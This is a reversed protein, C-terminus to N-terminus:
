CESVIVLMPEGINKSFFATPTTRASLELAYSIQDFSLGFLRTEVYEDFDPTASCFVTIQLTSRINEAIEEQQTKLQSGQFIKLKKPLKSINRIFNKRESITQIRPLAVFFTRRVLSSKMNSSNKLSFQDIFNKERMTLAEVSKKGIIYTIFKRPKRLFCFPPAGTKYCITSFTPWRTKGLNAKLNKRNDGNQNRLGLDFKPLIATSSTNPATNLSVTHSRAKALRACCRQVKKSEAWILLISPFHDM